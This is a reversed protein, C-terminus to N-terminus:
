PANVTFQRGLLYIERSAARSASPKRVTVRVFMRRMESTLADVGEGQFVKVLLSGGPALVHVAIDLAADALGLARPVDIYDLGTINPAMDSMVLDAPRGGLAEVVREVVTPDELDAQLFQTGPVPDMPLIDVAVIVGRGKLRQAAVQSWGGPAAGLDVITIGPRLLRDRGDIELLKFAARSRYGQEHARRVYPDRVQRRLWTQEAKTRAM